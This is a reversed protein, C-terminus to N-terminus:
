VALDPEGGPGGADAQGEKVGEPRAAEVEAPEPEGKTAVYILAAVAALLPTLAAGTVIYVGPLNALPNAADVSLASVMWSPLMNFLDPRAVFYPLQSYINLMEGAAVGALALPGAAVAWARSREVGRLVAASASILQGAMLALKVGFLRSYDSEPTQGIWSGVVNAFKYPSAQTLAHLYWLGALVSLALFALGYKFLVRSLESYREGAEGARWRARVRRGDWQGGGRRLRRRVGDRLGQEDEEM